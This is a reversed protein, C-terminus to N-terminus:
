ERTLDSVPVIRVGMAKLEPLAQAIARATGPHPHGIAIASGERVAERGLALLISRARRTVGGDDLFEGSRAAHPVALRHAVTGVVTDPMTKSDLFFLGRSQVASLVRSMVREDQTAKSGMHNNVGRVGPLEDLDKEVRRTIEADSLDTTISGPPLLNTHQFPEMPLHLLAEHGNARILELCRVAQRTEPIIAFSLDADLDLFPQLQGVSMGIDDIVLALRAGGSSRDKLLDRVRSAGSLPTLSAVQQGSIKRPATSKARHKESPNAGVHTDTDAM